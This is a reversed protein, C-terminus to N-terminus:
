VVVSFCSFGHVTRQTFTSKSLPIMQAPVHIHLLCIKKGGSSKLAYRLVSLCEKVDKGVAVCIVDESIAGVPEEVIERSSSIMIPSAEAYNIPGARPTTALMASVVAM